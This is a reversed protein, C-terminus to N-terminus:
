SILSHAGDSFWFEHLVSHDENQQSLVQRLMTVSEATHNEPIAQLM